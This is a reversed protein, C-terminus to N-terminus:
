MNSLSNIFVKLFFSVLHVQKVYQVYQWSDVMHVKLKILIMTLGIPWVWVFLTLTCPPLWHIINVLYPLYFIWGFFPASYPRYWYGIFWYFGLSFFYIWVLWNKLWFILCLFLFISLKMYCPSLWQSSSLALDFLFFHYSSYRTHPPSPWKSELRSTKM